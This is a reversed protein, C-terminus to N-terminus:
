ASRSLGLPATTVLRDPLQELEAELLDDSEQTEGRFKDLPEDGLLLFTELGVWVSLLEPEDFLDM